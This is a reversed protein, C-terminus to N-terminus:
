RSVGSVVLVDRSCWRHPLGWVGRESHFGPKGHVSGLRFPHINSRAWGSVLALNYNGTLFGSKSPSFSRNVRCICDSRPTPPPSIRVTRGREFYLPGTSGSSHSLSGDLQVLVVGRTCLTLVMYESSLTSNPPTQINSSVYSELFSVSKSPSAVLPSNLLLEFM